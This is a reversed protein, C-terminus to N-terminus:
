VRQLEIVPFRIVLLRLIEFGVTCPENLRRRKKDKGHPQALGGSWNDLFTGEYISLRIADVASAM